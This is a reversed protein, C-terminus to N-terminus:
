NAASNGDMVNRIWLNEARRKALYDQSEKTNIKLLVKVIPEAIDERINRPYLNLTDILDPVASPTALEGIAEIVNRKPNAGFNRDKLLELLDSLITQDKLRGLGLAATGINTWSLRDINRTRIITRFLDVALPNKLYEVASVLEERTGSENKLFDYADILCKASEDGGIRRLTSIAARTVSGQDTILARRLGSIARTDGFNTKRAFALACQISIEDLDHEIARALAEVAQRHPYRELTKIAPPWVSSDYQYLLTELAREVMPPVTESQEIAQLDGLLDLWPRSNPNSFDRIHRDSLKPHIEPDRPKKKPNRDPFQLVVPVVRKGLGLAFSWEYTVFQSALSAVSVIAIVGLCNRLNKDIVEKWEDGGVLKDDMWTPFGGAEIASRLELAFPKEERKYSIFFFSM